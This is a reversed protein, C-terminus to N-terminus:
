ISFLKDRNTIAQHIEDDFWDQNNGKVRIQKMPAIQDIVQKTKNIFDEYADNIDNFQSYDPFNVERLANLFADQSYNKLSRITIYNHEYVKPRVIKRTCFILQHDSLGIDIVGSQSVRDQSNTLVHDLITSTNETVRTPSTILQKLGHLSCFEKYKGTTDTLNQGKKILNINLDGLIYAENADFSTANIIATSLKDLFDIQTPPRYVIGILIPKSNPLLIDFFINEIDASFDKRVNFAMDSRVYCAVGGGNRNRDSRIVEYGDIFVEGDLVSKDLKSESIGIVVARSKKAIERVEDIKSLLSNINIHLFHLGRNSFPLWLDEISSINSVGSINESITENLGDPTIIDEVSNLPNESITENVLSDSIDEVSNICSSCTYCFDAKPIKLLRKYETDSMQECKQHTWLGCQTCFVGKTRVAKKCATCPYNTPGPNLNIDGSLLLLFQFFSSHYKCKLKSLAYINLQEKIIMSSLNTSITISDNTFLDKNNYISLRSFKSTSKSPTNQFMM